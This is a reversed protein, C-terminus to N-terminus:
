QSDKRLASTLTRVAGEQGGTPALTKQQDESLSRFYRRAADAKSRFQGSHYYAVFRRKIERLTEHRKEAGFRAQDSARQEAYLVGQRSLKATGLLEQATMAWGAMEEYQAHNPEQQKVIRHALANAQAAAGLAHIMLADELKAGVVRSCVHQRYLAGIMGGEFGFLALDRANMYAEFDGPHEKAEVASFMADVGEALREQSTQEWEDFHLLVESAVRQLSECLIPPTTEWPHFDHIAERYTLPPTM